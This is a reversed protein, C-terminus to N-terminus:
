KQVYIGKSIAQNEIRNKWKEFNLFDLEDIFHQKNNKMSIIVGNYQFTITKVNEWFIFHPQHNVIIITKLSIVLKFESKGKVLFILGEIILLGIVSIFLLTHNIFLLLQVIIIIYFFHPLMENFMSKKWGQHTIKFGKQSRLLKLKRWRSYAKFLWIVLILAPFFFTIENYLSIDWGYDYNHHFFSIIVFFLILSYNFWNLFLIM